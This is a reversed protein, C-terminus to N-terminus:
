GPHGASHPAGGLNAEDYEYQERVDILTPTEGASLRHKLEQATIDAM